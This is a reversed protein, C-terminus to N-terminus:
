QCSDEFCPYYYYLLAEADLKGNPWGILLYSNEGLPRREIAYYTDINWFEFNEDITVTLSGRGDKAYGMWFVQSEDEVQKLCIQVLFNTSEAFEILQSNDPCPAFRQSPNLNTILNLITTRGTQPLPNDIPYDRQIERAQYSGTKEPMQAILSVSGDFDESASFFQNSRRMVESDKFNIEGRESAEIRYSTLFFAKASPLIALSFGVWISFLLLVQKM